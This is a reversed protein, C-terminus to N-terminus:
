SVTVPYLLPHRSKDIGRIDWKTTHIHTTNRYILKIHTLFAISDALKPGDHPAVIILMTTWLMKKTSKGEWLFCEYGNRTKQKQPFQLWCSFQLTSRNVKPQYCTGVKTKQKQIPVWHAGLPSSRGLLGGDAHEWIPGPPILTEHMPAQFSAGPSWTCFGHPNGLCRAFCRRLWCSLEQALAM